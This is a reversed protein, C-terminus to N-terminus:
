GPAWPAQTPSCSAWPSGPSRACGTLSSLVAPSPGRPCGPAPQLVWVRGACGREPGHVWARAALGSLSRPVCRHAHVAPCAPLGLCELCAPGWCARCGAASSGLSRVGGTREGAAVPRRPAPREAGGQLCRRSPPCCGRAEGVGSGQPPLGALLPRGRRRALSGTRGVRGVTGAGLLGLFGGGGRAKSSM